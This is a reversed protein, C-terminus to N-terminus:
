GLQLCFDGHRLYARIALGDRQQIAHHHSCWRAFVHRTRDRDNALAVALSVYGDESDACLEPFGISTLERPASKPACLFAAITSDAVSKQCGVLAGPGDSRSPRGPARYIQAGGPCKTM